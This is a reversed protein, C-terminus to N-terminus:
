RIKVWKYQKRIHRHFYAGHSPARMLEDFVAQPVSSYQYIGGSRFEIELTGSEAEYGISSINTSSVSRRIM